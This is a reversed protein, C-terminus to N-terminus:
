IIRDKCKYVNNGRLKDIILELREKNKNLEELNYNSKINNCDFCCSVSNGITYGLENNVRDVGNVYIIDGGHVNHSRLPKSNCYFCSSSILSKFYAFELEFIYGNKKARKKYNNFVSRYSSEERSAYKRKRKNAEIVSCGCSKTHGLRIHTSRVESYNGCDCKCLWICSREKNVYLMKIATLKGSRVGAIDKRRKESGLCGCSKTTGNRLSAGIIIKETGCECICKWLDARNKNYGVKELVTIREFKQGVHNHM